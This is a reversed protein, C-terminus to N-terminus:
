IAWAEAPAVLAPPAAAAPPRARFGQELAHLDCCEQVRVVNVALRGLRCEGRHLCEGVVGLRRQEDVVVRQCGAPAELAHNEIVRLRRRQRSVVVFVLLSRVGGGHCEGLRKDLVRCGVGM